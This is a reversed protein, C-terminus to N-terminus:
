KRLYFNSFKGNGEQCVNSLKDYNNIFIFIAVFVSPIMRHPSALSDVDCPDCPFRSKRNRAHRPRHVAAVAHALVDAAADVLKQALVIVDPVVVQVPLLANRDQLVAAAEAAVLGLEVVAERVSRGLM